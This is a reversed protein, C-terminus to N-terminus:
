KKFVISVPDGKRASLVEEASQQNVAIELMDSSGILAAPDGEEVDSFTNVVKDMITNGVFIKVQRGSIGTLDNKTINTILNGYADIHIITGEIGEQDVIPMPLKYTELKGAQPGFQEPRIGKSAYAAVPAFIDRGHFTNSIHERTYDPNEIFYGKVDRKAFPLSFLGNDPGVFIQDNVQAIIGKRTSGVGPDVVALHVTGPPFYFAANSLVWSGSIIDGAAISHSVDVLQVQPNISLMVAKMTSVYHDSYGFDTTLTVIPQSSSMM